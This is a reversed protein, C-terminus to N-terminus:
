APERWEGEWAEMWGTALYVQKSGSQYAWGPYQGSKVAFLSAADCISWRQVEGQWYVFYLADSSWYTPKGHVPLDVMEYYRDNLDVKSFGRFEVSAASTDIEAPTPGRNSGSRQASLGVAAPGLAKGRLSGLEEKVAPKMKKIGMM